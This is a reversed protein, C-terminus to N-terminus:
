LSSLNLGTFFIGVRRQFCWFIKDKLVTAEIDRFCLGRAVCVLFMMKRLFVAFFVQVQGRATSSFSTLIGRMHVCYYHIVTRFTLM